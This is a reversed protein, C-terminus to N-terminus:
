SCGTSGSGPDSRAVPVRIRHTAAKTANTPWSGQSSSSTSRPSPSPAPGAGRTASLTRGLRHRMRVRAEFERTVGRLSALGEAEIAPRRPAPFSTCGPRTPHRIQPMPRETTPKGPPPSAERTNGLISGPPLAEEIPSTAWPADHVGFVHNLNRRRESERDAARPPVPLEDHHM